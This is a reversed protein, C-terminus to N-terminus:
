LSNGQPYERTVTRCGLTVATVMVMQAWNILWNNLWCMVNKDLKIIYIKDLLTSSSNFAKNLDLTSWVCCNPCCLFYLLLLALFCVGICNQFTQLNRKKKKEKNKKVSICYAILINCYVDFSFTM